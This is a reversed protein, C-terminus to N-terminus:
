KMRLDCKKNKEGVRKSQREWESHRHTIHKRQTQREREREREREIGTEWKKSDREKYRCEM